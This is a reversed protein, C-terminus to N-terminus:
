FVLGIFKTMIYQDGVPNQGIEDAALQLYALSTKLNPLLQKQIADPNFIPAVAIFKPYKIGAIPMHKKLADAIYIM